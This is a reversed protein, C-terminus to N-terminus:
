VRRECFSTTRVKEAKPKSAYYLHAVETKYDFESYQCKLSNKFGLTIRIDFVPLVVECSGRSLQSLRKYACLNNCM